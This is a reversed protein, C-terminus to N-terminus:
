FLDCVNKTEPMNSRSGTGSEDDDEDPISALFLVYNDWTMKM